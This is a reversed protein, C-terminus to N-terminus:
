ARKGKEYLGIWDSMPYTEGCPPEGPSGICRVASSNDWAVALAGECNGCVVDDFMADSVTIRLAQRANRIWGDSAKVLERLLDPRADGFRSCQYPLGTLMANISNSAYLADREAEEMIRRIVTYADCVIEDLTFFGRTDGPPRGPVKVRPAGREAKPNRDTDQHTKFDELQKLLGPFKVNRARKEDTKPCDCSTTTPMTWKCTVVHTAVTVVYEAKEHWGQILLECNAVIRRHLKQAEETTLYDEGYTM